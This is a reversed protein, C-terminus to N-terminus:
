WKYDRLSFYKLPLCVLLSLIFLIGSASDNMADCIVLFLGVLVVVGLTRWAHSHNIKSDQIDVFVDIGITTLLLYGIASHPMWAWFAAKLQGNAGGVVTGVSGFFLHHLFAVLATLLVWCTVAIIFGARADAQIPARPQSQDQSM